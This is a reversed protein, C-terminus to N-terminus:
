GIAALSFLAVNKTCQMSVNKTRVLGVELMCFGAAMFMVLFGGMLFLLSNMIWVGDAPLTTAAAEQALAPTAAVTLAALLPLLTRKM